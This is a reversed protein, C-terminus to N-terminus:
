HLSALSEHLLVMNWILRCGFQSLIPVSLPLSGSVSTEQECSLSTPHCPLKKRATMESGRDVIDAGSRTRTADERASGIVALVVWEGVGGMLQSEYLVYM